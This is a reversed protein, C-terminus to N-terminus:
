ADSLLNFRSIADALRTRDLIGLYPLPNLGAELVYTTLQERVVARLEAPEWPKAIYHHLGAQNIARITDKHGAQATVLVKRTLNTFPAKQLEVLFDTGTAGRLLHDCLALGIQGGKKQVSEIVKRADDLDTSMALDFVEEFSTLDHGMAELVAPEDDLCLITLLPKPPPNM